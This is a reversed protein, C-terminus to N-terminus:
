NFRTKVAFYRSHFTGVRGIRSPSADGAPPSYGRGSGGGSSAHRGFSSSSSPASPQPPVPTRAQSGGGHSALSSTRHGNGEFLEPRRTLLRTVLEHKENCDRYPVAATALEHKLQSISLVSLRKAEQDLASSM